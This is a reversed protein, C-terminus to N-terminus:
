GVERLKDLTKELSKSDGVNLINVNKNIKKVLGSLVKGPGIEIFTDIGLNIMEEITEDWRVSNSVQNILSQRINDAGDITKATINAIVPVKPNTIKIGELDQGLRDGASKILSSHFPGSVNLRIARKAGNGLALEMAKDLANIEGAIVIQGPCNFNAVEVVGFQSAEECVKIVNEKDLGLIASMSATGMPAAEAMYQGRKNVLVVADKFELSGAAVLASYEGLSHGAVIEAKVNHKQLVRLCAISTTLIAPQTNNTKILEEEPGNFAIDSISNGLVSDAQEFVERAEIYNDYFDKGMGIYQSGQGPFIFAIKMKKIFGWIELLKKQM